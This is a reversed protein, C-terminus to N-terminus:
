AATLELAVTARRAALWLADYGATVYLPGSGDTLLRQALAVGAPSVQRESRLALALEILSARAARIERRALPPMSTVRVERSEAIRVAEELSNALRRRRARGTLRDARLKLEPTEAPDAGGALLRDLEAARLRTRLRVGLTPATKQRRSRSRRGAEIHPSFSSVM